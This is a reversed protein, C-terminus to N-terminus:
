KRIAKRRLKILRELEDLEHADASSVSEALLAMSEREAGAGLGRLVERATSQIFQDKTYRCSYVYRRGERVRELVGKDHLRALTTMVTTYALQRRKELVALVDGVSFAEFGKTWVISM